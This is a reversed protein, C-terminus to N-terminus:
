YRAFTLVLASVALLGLPKGLKPWNGFNIKVYTTKFPRQL